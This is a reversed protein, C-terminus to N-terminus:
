FHMRVSPVSIGIICACVPVTRIQTTMIVWPRSTCASGESPGFTLRQRSQSSSDAATSRVLTWLYSQVSFSSCAISQVLRLSPTPRTSCLAPILGNVLLDMWYVKKQSLSCLQVSPCCSQVWKSTKPIHLKPDRPIWSLTVLISICLGPLGSWGCFLSCVMWKWLMASGSRCLLKRQPHSWSHCPRKPPSDTRHSPSGKKKDLSSSLTLGIDPYYWSSLILPSRLRQPSFLSLTAWILFFSGIMPTSSCHKQLQCQIVITSTQRTHKIILLDALSVSGAPVFCIYPQSSLNARQTVANQTSTSQWFSLFHRKMIRLVSDHWWAYRGQHLASPCANLIHRLSAVIQMFSRYCFRCTRDTWHPFSRKLRSSESSISAVSIVVTRRTRFNIKKKWRLKARKIRM